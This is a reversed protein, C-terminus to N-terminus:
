SAPKRADSPLTAGGVYVQETGCHGVKMRIFIIDRPNIEAIVVAQNVDIAASAM